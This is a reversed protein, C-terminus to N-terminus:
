ARADRIPPTARSMDGQPPEVRSSTPAWTPSAAHPSHGAIFNAIEIVRIGRRKSM